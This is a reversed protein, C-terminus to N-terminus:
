RSLALFAEGARSRRWLAERAGAFFAHVPRSLAAQPSVPDLRKGNGAQPPWSILVRRCGEARPIHQGRPVRRGSCSGPALLPRADAVPLACGRGGPPLAPPSCPPRGGQARAAGASGPPGCPQLSGRVGVGRGSGKEAKASPQREPKSVPGACAEATLNENGTGCLTPGSRSLMAASM